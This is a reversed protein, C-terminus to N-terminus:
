VIHADSLYVMEHEGGTRQGVAQVEIDAHEPHAVLLMAPMMRQKEARLFDIYVGRFAFKLRSRLIEFVPRLIEAEHCVIVQMSHLLLKAPHSLGHFQTRNSTMPRHACHFAEIQTVGIAIKHFQSVIPFQPETSFKGM